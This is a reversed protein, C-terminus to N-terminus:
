TQWFSLTHHSKKETKMISHDVYPQYSPVRHTGVVYMKTVNSKDLGYICSAGSDAVFIDGTNNCQVGTPFIIQKQTKVNDKHKLVPEPVKICKYRKAIKLAEQVIPGTVSHSLYDSQRDKGVIVCTKLRKCAREISIRHEFILNYPIQFPPTDPTYM